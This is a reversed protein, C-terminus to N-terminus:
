FNTVPPAGLPLTPSWPAMDDMESLGRLAGRVPSISSIAWVYPDPYITGFGAPPSNMEDM